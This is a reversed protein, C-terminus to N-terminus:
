WGPLKPIHSGRPVKCLECTLGTAYGFNAIPLTKVQLYGIHSPEPLVGASPPPPECM